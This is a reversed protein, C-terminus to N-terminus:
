SHHDSGAENCIRERTEEGTMSPHSLIELCVIGNVLHPLFSLLKRFEICVGGGEDSGGVGLYNQKHPVNSVDPAKPVAPDAVNFVHQAILKNHRNALFYLGRIEVLEDGMRVALHKSYSIGDSRSM